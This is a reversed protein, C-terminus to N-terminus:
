DRPLGVLVDAAPWEQSLMRAITENSSTVVYPLEDDVLVRATVEAGLTADGWPAIANALHGDFELGRYADSFWAEWALRLDDDRVGLWVGYVIEQSGVLKVALLVRVFSGIGKVQM